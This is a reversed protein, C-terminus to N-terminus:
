FLITDRMVGGIIGTVTALIIIGLIDYRHDIAKLASTVAFVLNCCFGCNWIFGTRINNVLFQQDIILIISLFYVNQV